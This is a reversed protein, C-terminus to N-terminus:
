LPPRPALARAVSVRQQQGGSLQHPMRREYGALGVLALVAEVRGSRRDRRSLGYAVNDFVSLHPFLAGDQPVVAVRRRHAPVTTVRQGAITIEGADVPEFGAVCRLLTTKGCGSPGLVATLSGAPVTLSAGALARVPGFAKSVGRVVLEAM